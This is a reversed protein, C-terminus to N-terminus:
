GNCSVSCQSNGSCSRHNCNRGYRKSWHSLVREGNVHITCAGCQGFDCGKKTGTLKLQERLLDLLTVRPAVNLNYLKGNVTLSLPQDSLFTELKEDFKEDAAKAIAAPAIAVATLATTQKLFTRRSRNSSGKDLTNLDSKHPM